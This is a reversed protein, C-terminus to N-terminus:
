HELEKLYREYTPNDMLQAVEGPDSMRVRIMWGMGFPSHNVLEPRDVIAFNVEVVEGSVPSFLDSVAKVSEIEGFKQFQAVKAGLPPLQVFVVDGLEGAAYDSIGVRAFSGEEIRMWEHEKSYLCAEPGWAAAAKALEALEDREEDAM